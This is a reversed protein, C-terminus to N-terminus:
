LHHLRRVSGVACGCPHSSNAPDTRTGQGANNWLYIDSNLSDCTALVGGRNFAVGLYPPGGDPNTEPQSAAFYYSLTSVLKDTAANWLYTDGDNDGTAHLGGNASFAVSLVGAASYGDNENETDTVTATLRHTAANWLYTDSDGAALLSGNPSFAIAGTNAYGASTLVTILRRTTVNWVYAKGDYDVAALM